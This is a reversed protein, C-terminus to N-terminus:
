EPDEDDSDDDGSKEQETTTEEPMAAIQELAVDENNFGTENESPLTAKENLMYDIGALRQAPRNQQKYFPNVNM